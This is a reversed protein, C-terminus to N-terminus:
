LTTLKFGLNFVSGSLNIRFPSTSSFLTLFYGGKLILLVKSSVPIEVTLKPTLDFLSSTFQFDETDNISLKNIGLMVEIAPSIGWVKSEVESDLILRQGNVRIFHYSGGIALRTLPIEGVNSTQFQSFSLTAITRYDFLAVNYDIQFGTKSSLTRTEALAGSSDFANITYNALGYSLDFSSATKIAWADPLWFFFAFILSHIRIVKGLIASM